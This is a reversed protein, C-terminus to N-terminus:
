MIRASMVPTGSRKPRMLGIRRLKMGHRRRSSRTAPRLGHTRITTVSQTSVTTGISIKVSPRM